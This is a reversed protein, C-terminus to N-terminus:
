FMRDAARLGLDVRRIMLRATMGLGTVALSQGLHWTEVVFDQAGGSLWGLRVVLLALDTVSGLVFAWCALSLAWALSRIPESRDRRGTSLALAGLFSFIVINAIVNIFLLGSM